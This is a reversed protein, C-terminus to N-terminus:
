SSAGAVKARIQEMIQSAEEETIEIFENELDGREASILSTSYEWILNRTFAEDSRGGDETYTRRFVGAPRERSSLDNVVAYYTVRDPM